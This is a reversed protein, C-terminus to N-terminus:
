RRSCPPSATAPMSRSGARPRFCKTQKFSGFNCPNGAQCYPSALAAASPKGGFVNAGVYSSDTGELTGGPTLHLTNQLLDIKDQLYGLYITRQVGGDAADGSSYISLNSATQPPTSTGGFYFPPNPQTEKAALGGLKITNAIGFYEPLTVTMRPQIGYSDNHIPNVYANYGCPSM